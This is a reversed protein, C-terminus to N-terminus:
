PDWAEVVIQGNWDVPSPLGLTNVLTPAVENAAGLAVFALVPRRKVFLIVQRALSM